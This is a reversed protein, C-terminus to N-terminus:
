LVPVSFNIMKRMKRGITKFLYIKSTLLDQKFSTNITTKSLQPKDSL